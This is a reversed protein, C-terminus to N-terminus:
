EATESPLPRIREPRRASRWALWLKRLPTLHHRRELQPHDDEAMVALLRRYLVALVLAPRQRRRAPRPLRRIASDLFDRARQGQVALVRRLAESDRRALLDERTLGEAALDAEPIYVRGAAIDRGLHRLLRTLELGMALDHAFAATQPTDPGGVRRALEALGGARHCYVTLERLAPYSGYELDMRAAEIVEAFPERAFGHREIVPALAQSVPHRPQGAFLRELEEQWWKLKVAGVGPDSVERPVELVEARYAALALLAEREPAGAFLLAYHLSSGEPAAKDRCYALPDM